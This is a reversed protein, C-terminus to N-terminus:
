CRASKSEHLWLEHALDFVRTESVSTSSDINERYFQLAACQNRAALSSFLLRNGQVTWSPPEKTDDKLCRVSDDEVALDEGRQRHLELALRGVGDPVLGLDDEPRCSM